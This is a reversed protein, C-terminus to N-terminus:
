EVIPIDSYYKRIISDQLDGRRKILRLIKNQYDNTISTVFHDIKHNFDYISVIEEFKSDRIMQDLASLRSQYLEDIKTINCIESINNKFDEITRGDDSIQTRINSVIRNATYKKAQHTKSSMCNDFLNRRVKDVSNDDACFQERAANLLFMDMLVNEIEVVHLTYISKLKLAEIQENNMYDWDIIGIARHTDDGLVTNYARVNRIVEDHGGSPIVKYDPFLIPYLENEVGTPTSECFLIPKELFANFRSGTLQRIAEVKDTAYIYANGDVDSKILRIQDGDAIDVFTPSHTALVIQRNPYECMLNYMTSKRGEHLHADPEDFLLLTKEDAVIELIAKILILKKEGESLQKTTLNGNFHIEIGRIIKEKKPMYAQILENFFEQDDIGSNVVYNEGSATVIYDGNNAILTDYFVTHKLESISYSVKKVHQPNIRDIFAKLKANDTKEYNNLNFEFEINEVSHINLEDNVFESLSPNESILLIVLAINWYYKNIFMLKMSDMPLNFKIKHIYASYYPEYFDTWLRDEEGSYVGIVNRPMYTRIFEERRCLYGNVYFSLRGSKREIVLDKEYLEYSVFYECSSGKLKRQAPAKYADHFIASIAELVNSKGSGNNGILMTLGNGSEFDITIDKLNKYNQIYLKKLKM